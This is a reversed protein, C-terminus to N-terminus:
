PVSLCQFSSCKFIGSNGSSITGVIKFFTVPRRAFTLVQYSGLQEERKDVAMDWKLQDLSTEIYFSYSENTPFLLRLTNIYYPQGLQVIISKRIENFVFNEVNLNFISSLDRINSSGEIVKAGMEVTAVNYNPVILGRFLSPQKANDM